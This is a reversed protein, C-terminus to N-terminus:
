LAADCVDSKGEDNAGILYRWVGACLLSQMAALERPFAATRNIAKRPRVCSGAGVIAPICRGSEMM